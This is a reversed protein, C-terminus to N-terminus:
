LRMPVFKCPQVEEREWSGAHRRLRVLVDWEGGRSEPYLVVGAPAAQELWAPPVAAIAASAVVRDYPAGLPWGNMGNGAVLTVRDGFGCRDIADRAGPLLDGVIEVGTVEMGAAAFVAAAYGSGSGIELVRVRPAPEMATVMVAVMSPASITAGPALQLAEDAYALEAYRPPVFLERAVAGIAQLALESIIGQGSNARLYEVLRRRALASESM